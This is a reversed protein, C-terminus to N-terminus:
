ERNNYNVKLCYRKKDKCLSNVYKTFQLTEKTAGIITLTNAQPQLILPDKEPVTFVEYGGSGASWPLAPDYIIVIGEEPTESDHMLTYDGQVFRVVEMHCGKVKKGTIEELWLRFVADQFVEQVTKLAGIEDAKAYRYKDPVYRQQYHARQLHQALTKAKEPKFFDQLQVHSFEKEQLFAKKLANIIEEQLYIPNLWKEIKTRNDSAM